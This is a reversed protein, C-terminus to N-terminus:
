LDSAFRVCFDEGLYDDPARGNVVTHAALRGLEDASKAVQGNGALLAVLRSGGDVVPEGDPKSSLPSVYGIYPRGTPSASVM